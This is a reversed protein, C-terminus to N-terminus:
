TFFAIVLCLILASRDIGGVRGRCPSRPPRAWPRRRHRSSTVEGDGAREGRAEGDGAREAPAMVEGHAEGDGVREAPAMEEGDGEREVWEAREAPAM